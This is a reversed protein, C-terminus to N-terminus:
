ISCLSDVLDWWGGRGWLFHVTGLAVGQESEPDAVCQEGSWMLTVVTKTVTTITKTPTFGRSVLHLVCELTAFLVHLNPILVSCICKATPDPLCQYQFTAWHSTSDEKMQCPDITRNSEETFM